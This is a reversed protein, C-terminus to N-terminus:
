IVFLGIIVNRVEESSNWPANRKNPGAQKNNPPQSQPNNEWNNNMNEKQNNNQQNM